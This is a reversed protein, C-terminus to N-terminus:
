LPTQQAVESSPFNCNPIQVICYWPLTWDLSNPWGWFNIQHFCVQAYVKFHLWSYRRQAQFITIQCRSFHHGQHGRKSSDIFCCIEDYSHEAEWCWNQSSICIQSFIRCHLLCSQPTKAFCCGCWWLSNGCFYHRKSRFLLCSLLCFVWYSIRLDRSITHFLKYHRQLVAGVDDCHIVVNGTSFFLWWNWFYPRWFYSVKILRKFFM